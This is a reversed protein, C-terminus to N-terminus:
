QAIPIESNSRRARDQRITAFNDFLFASLVGILGAHWQRAYCRSLPWIFPVSRTCSLFTSSKHRWRVTSTVAHANVPVSNPHLAEIVCPTKRREANDHLTEHAFFLNPSFMWSGPYYCVNIKVPRSDDVRHERITKM